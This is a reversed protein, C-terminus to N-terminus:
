VAELSGCEASAAAHGRDIAKDRGVPERENMWPLWAHLYAEVDDLLLAFGYGYGVWGFGEGCWINWRGALADTSSTFALHENTRRGQGLVCGPQGYLM